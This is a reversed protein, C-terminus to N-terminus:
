SVLRSNFNMSALLSTPWNNSFQCLLSSFSALKVELSILLQEIACWLSTLVKLRKWIERISSSMSYCTLGNLAWILHDWHPVSIAPTSPWVQFSNSASRSLKHPPPISWCSETRTQLSASNTSIIKSSTEWNNWLPWILSYYLNFLGKRSLNFTKGLSSVASSTMSLFTSFSWLKHLTSTRRFTSKVTCKASQHNLLWMTGTTSGTTNFMTAFPLLSSLCPTWTM